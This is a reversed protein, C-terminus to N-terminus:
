NQFRIDNVVVIRSDSSAQAIFLLHHILFMQLGVNQEVKYLYEENLVLLGPKIGILANSEDDYQEASIFRSSVCFVCLVFM